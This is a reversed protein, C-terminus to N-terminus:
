AHVRLNIGVACVEELPIRVDYEDREQWKTGVLVTSLYQTSPRNAFKVDVALM